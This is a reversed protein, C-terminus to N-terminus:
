AISKEKAQQIWQYLIGVAGDKGIPKEESTISANFSPCVNIECISQLAATIEEQKFDKKSPTRGPKPISFVTLHNNDETGQIEIADDRTKLLLNKIGGPLKKAEFITVDQLETSPIKTM